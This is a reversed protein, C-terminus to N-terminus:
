DAMCHAVACTASCLWIPLHPGLSKEWLVSCGRGAVAKRLDTVDGLLAVLQLGNLFGLCCCCLEFDPFLASSNGVSGPSSTAGSVAATAM